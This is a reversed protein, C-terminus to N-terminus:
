SLNAEMLFAVANISLLILFLTLMWGFTHLNPCKIPFCKSLRLSKM